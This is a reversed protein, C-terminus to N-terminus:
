NKECAKPFEQFIDTLRFTEAMQSRKEAQKALFSLVELDKQITETKVHKVKIAVKRGSSLTALHVQGLSATGLPLSDLQSLWQQYPQKFENELTEIVDEIPHPKSQDQLDMLPIRWSESLLDKRLSLFQGLKIFVPGLEELAEKLLRGEQFEDLSQGRAKQSGRFGFKNLLHALGYKAFTNFIERLRSWM